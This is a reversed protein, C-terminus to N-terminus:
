KIHRALGYALPVVARASEVNNGPGFQRLFGAAMECPRSVRGSWTQLGTTEPRVVNLRTQGVADFTSLLLLAGLTIPCVTAASRM